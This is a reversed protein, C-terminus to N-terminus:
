GPGSHTHISIDGSPFRIVAGWSRSSQASSLMDAGAEDVQYRGPRGHKVVEVVGQVSDSLALCYGDPSIIRFM